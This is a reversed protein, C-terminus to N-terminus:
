RITRMEGFNPIVGPASESLPRHGAPWYVFFAKGLLFREPVRGGDALLDESDQLDVQHEWYRADLSLNSNDGMVFYEKPGLMVPNNPMGFLLPSTNPASRNTYYVDRYVSLHTLTCSQNAARLEVKPFPPQEGAGYEAVLADVDPAYQQPTSVILEGGNVSLSVRYDVNQLTVAIPTGGVPIAASGIVQRTGDPLFHILKAQGPTLEAVFKHARKELTLQLPGDGSARAYTVNLQLDSVPNLPPSRRHDLPNSPYENSAFREVPPIFNQQYQTIDFALWDTFSHKAPNADRDFTVGASGTGSFVLSRGNDAPTMGAANPLPVWPSRFDPDAGRPQYDNDAVVRWVARQAAPSKTRITWPSAADPRTYVDGDLVMLQENPLGVLRKIYNQQFDPKNIKRPEGRDNAAQDYPSKFVIVDWREPPHLLYAYKLVLIRDGYYVPPATADNSPDDRLLQPVKHGCNPCILNFNGPAVSPIDIDDSGPRSSGSYNVTFPYGCDECTFRMNAGLLTPAMSGTPIVFAEVVFGRFVFALILAILISELTDKISGQDTADPTKPTAAM